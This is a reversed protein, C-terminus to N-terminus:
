VPVWQLRAIQIGKLAPLLAALYYEGGHEIVEPAAVPVTGVLHRDAAADIGFDFPDTSHYVRTIADQGYRQTRFLYYHGGPRAVVFPCEAASPGTGAEGGRAVLRAASWTWTDASTRCYVAGQRHPHATYYCYWHAGIRLVMPDRTNAEPGEGFLGATGDPGLRRTFTKGDLSTAVCIREWDGYFLHYVGNIQVVHPAQLGGPTEGYQPGARMAIGAPTWDPQTLARGEWRYFLRTRGAERTRRICSWLQWTGGAAQWVAFDVVQQEPATLEGLDPDGAIQWWPEVIQPREVAM